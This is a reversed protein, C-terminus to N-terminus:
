LIQGFICGSDNTKGLIFELFFFSAIRVEDALGQALCSWMFM